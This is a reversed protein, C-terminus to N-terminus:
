SGSPSRRAKQNDAISQKITNHRNEFAAALPKKVFHSLIGVFIIFNVIFWGVPLKSKDWEWWNIDSFYVPGGGGTALAAGSVLTLAMVFAIQALLQRKIM